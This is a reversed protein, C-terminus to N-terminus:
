ADIFSYTAASAGSMMVVCAIVAVLMSNCRM